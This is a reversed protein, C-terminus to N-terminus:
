PTLRTIPKPLQLALLLPLVLLAAGFLYASDSGYNFYVLAALLPGVARALSGASRFVGLAQGQANEKSYLSVLASLTPSVLGISFAM